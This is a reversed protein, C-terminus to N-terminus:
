FYAQCFDTTCKILKAHFRLKKNDQLEKLSRCSHTSARWFAMISQVDRWNDKWLVFVVDDRFFSSEEFGNLSPCSTLASTKLIM